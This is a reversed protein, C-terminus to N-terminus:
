SISLKDCPSCKSSLWYVVDTRDMCAYVQHRYCAAAKSSASHGSTASLVRDIFKKVLQMSMCIITTPATSTNSHTAIIYHLGLSERM